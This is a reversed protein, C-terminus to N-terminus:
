KIGRTAKTASSLWDDVIKAIQYPQELHVCHGTKPVTAIVVGSQYSQMKQAIQRFKDDWEGTIALFPCRIEALNQWYSPQKGTGSYCLSMALGFPNQSLRTQRVQEQIKWPLLKQSAFLPLDQWYDVFDSLPQQLLRIALRQDRRCRQQREQPDELGPSGSEMVLGVVNQPFSVTWALAVRAGMSYGYLFYQEIGLQKVLEALDAVMQPLEYRFPHVHSATHGHGLLDIALLNVKEVQSFVSQFSNSTGTFGHLFVITPQTAQYPRYWQYAYDVGSIRKM